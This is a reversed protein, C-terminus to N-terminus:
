RRCALAGGARPMSRATPMPSSSQALGCIPTAEDQFSIVGHLRDSSRSALRALSPTRAAPPKGSSNPVIETESPMEIPWSPMRAESTLRSTMASETSVTIDAGLPEVAHHQQGAAVLRQGAHQHGGGPEVQGRHEEVRARRQGALQAVAVEGDDVGELADAGASAPLIVRSSSVSISFAVQGPSPAQPPMYVALVIAAAASASPMDSGPLAAGGAGSAGGRRAVGHADPSATTCRSSAPM